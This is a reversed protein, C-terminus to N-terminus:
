PFFDGGGKAEQARGMERRAADINEGVDRLEDEDRQKEKVAARLEEFQTHLEEFEKMSKMHEDAAQEETMDAGAGAGAGKAGGARWERPEDDKKEAESGSEERQGVAEEGEEQEEEESSDSSSDSSSSSSDSSSDDDAAEKAECEVKVAAVLKKLYAQLIESHPDHELLVETLDLADMNRGRQVADVLLVKLRDCGEKTPFNLHRRARRLEMEIEYLSKKKPEDQPPPASKEPPAAKSSSKASKVSPAKSKSAAVSSSRPKSTGTKTGRANM